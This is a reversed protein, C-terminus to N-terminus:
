GRITIKYIEGSFGDKGRIIYLFNKYKIAHWDAKNNWWEFIPHAGPGDGIELDWDFQKIDVKEPNSSNVASLYNNKQLYNVIERIVQIPRDSNNDPLGVYLHYINYSNNRFKMIEESTIDLRITQGFAINFVSVLLFVSVVFVKRTM